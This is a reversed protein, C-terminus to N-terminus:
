DRKATVVALAIFLLRMWEHLCLKRLKWISDPAQESHQGGCVLEQTIAAVLKHDADDSTVGTTTAQLRLFGCAIGVAIEELALRLRLPPSSAGAGEPTGYIRCKRQLFAIHQADCVLGYTSEANEPAVAVVLDAVACEDQQM